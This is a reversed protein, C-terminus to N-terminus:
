AALEPYTERQVLVASHNEAHRAYYALDSGYRKLMEFARAIHTGRGSEIATLLEKNWTDIKTMTKTIEHSYNSCAIKAATGPNEISKVERNLDGASKSM